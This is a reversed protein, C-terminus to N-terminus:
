LVNNGFEILVEFLNLRTQRQKATEGRCTLRFTVAAPLKQGDLLVQHHDAAGAGTCGGGQDSRERERVKICVFM